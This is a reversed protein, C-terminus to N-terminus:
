QTHYSTSFQIKNKKCYRRAAWGLPGEVSVHIIDPNYDKIMKALKGYPLIALEIEKYGPMPMRMPFDEPGIVKVEHGMAIFQECLHEYTRVVGNVQPHWADSIILIKM